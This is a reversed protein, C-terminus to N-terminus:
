SEMGGIHPIHHRGLAQHVTKWETYFDFSAAGGERGIGSAKSGGFPTRLDRVNQANIWVMGSELAAAARHAREADRTWVYSALGYRVGNALALAEEEDRFTMLALVPGFIEEQAVRMESTVETLLTAQLYHGVPCHPPRDGGVAIQFGEGLRLYGMVREWHERHILPGLETALDFPDGVRIRSIREGLMAVFRPAMTESVLVRSGATCREGNLTFMGYLTADLARELDADDFIIVPSKGGLEMSFRKLHRAGREMIIKGTATEGTFSILPVDPHTVLRDGAVEGLGQVVNLVGPPLGARQIVLALRHATLPSWEAPKLVATNGSALCPAIKWTELMLPTNWPTILGAVGISERVSYNFFDPALPFTEGTMRTAVEAFFRFNEAAREIQGLTQRIPIGTDLTELHALVERDRMMEDAISRLYGARTKASATSWGGRYARRAAEVAGDVDEVAGEAVHCLVQDTAPNRDEFMGGATSEVFQGDIFHPITEPVLQRLADSTM